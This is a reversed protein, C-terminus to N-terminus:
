SDFPVRLPLIKKVELRWGIKVIGKIEQAILCKHICIKYNYSQSSMDNLDQM